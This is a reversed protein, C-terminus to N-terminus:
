NLHESADLFLRFVIMPNAKGDWMGTGGCGPIPTAITFEETGHNAAPAGLGRAPDGWPDTRPCGCGAGADVLRIAVNDFFVGSRQWRASSSV